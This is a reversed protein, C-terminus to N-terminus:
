GSKIDIKSERWLQIKIRKSLKSESTPVGKSTVNASVEILNGKFNGIEIPFSIKDTGSDSKFVHGKNVDCIMKWKESQEEKCYLPIKKFNTEKPIEITAITDFAPEGSNAITFNYTIQDGTGLVYNRGYFDSTGEVSLTVQCQSNNKCGTQINLSYEFDTENNNLLVFKEDFTVNTSPETKKLQPKCVIILKDFLEEKNIKYEYYTFNSCVEDFTLSMKIPQQAISNGDLTPNRRGNNLSEYSKCLIEFDKFLFFLNTNHIKVSKLLLIYQCSMGTSFEKGRITKDIYSVKACMQFNLETTTKEINKVLNKERITGIINLIRYSKFVHVTDSGPSGVAFDQFDNSDIDIGKSISFGFTKGKVTLKQKYVFSTCGKCGWFIYVVGDGEFPASIAFDNIGDRNIDGIKGFATGFRGSKEYDSTIPVPDNDFQTDISLNFCAYYILQIMSLQKIIYKRVKNNKQFYVYVAGNDYDGTTSAFPNSVLIDDHGDGNIDETLIAYGFFEKNLPSKITKIFEYQNLDYILVIGGLKETLRSKSSVVYVTNTINLASLSYGLYLGNYKHDNGNYKVAINRKPGNRSNYLSISGNSNFDGPCGVAFDGNNIFSISFGCQPFRHPKDNRTQYNEVETEQPNEFNNNKYCKGSVIESNRFNPACTLLFDKDAGGLTAGYFAHDHKIGSSKEMKECSENKKIGLNSLTCSFVAGSYFRSSNSRPAGVIIKETTLDISYGFYSSIEHEIITDSPNEAVNSSCNVKTLISTLFIWILYKTIIMQLLIM